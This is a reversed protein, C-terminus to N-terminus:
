IVDIIAQAYASRLASFGGPMSEVNQLMRDNSNQIQQLRRPDRMIAGIERLRDPSDLLSRLEPNSSAAQAFQPNMLLAQRIFEPNEMMQQMQPFATMLDSMEKAPGDQSSRNPVVNTNATSSSSSSGSSQGVVYVAAGDAISNVLEDNRLIKGAVVLRQQESPIKAIKAIETKLDRVNEVDEPIVYTVKERSVLNLVITKTM